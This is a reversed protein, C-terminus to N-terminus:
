QPDVHRPHSRVKHHAQLNLVKVGQQRLAQEEHRDHQRDLRPAGGAPHLLFVVRVRGGPQQVRLKGGLGPRVRRAPRIFFVTYHNRIFEQRLVRQRDTPQEHSTPRQVNLHQENFPCSRPEIPALVNGRRQIKRKGGYVALTTERLIFLTRTCPKFSVSVFSWPSRVIMHGPGTPSPRCGKMIAAKAVTYSELPMLWEQALRREQNRFVRHRSAGKFSRSVEVALGRDALCFRAITGKIRPVTHTPETQVWEAM